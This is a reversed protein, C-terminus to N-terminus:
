SMKINGNSVKHRQSFSILWVLGLVMIGGAAYFVANVDAFDLLFGGILPGLVMGASTSMTLVAVTSGMGFKRGEAITLASAPPFEAAGVIGAFINLALLPWFGGTLPMAALSAATIIGSVVIMGKKNVKDAVRGFVIMMLSSILINATLLIGIQSPGLGLGSALIALSVIYIGWGAELTLRYGLLGQIMGSSLMARFSIRSKDAVQKVRSEPLLISAVLFALFGLGSMSIFTVTMGFNETLIGSLLPGVGLAIFVTASFYGMWTGEKGEPSLDGVYSMAIPFIMGGAAGHVMRVVVLQWPNVAWIYGPAALVALMLGVLLIPKRGKRDSLRGIFPAMLVRTGSYVAFLIGIWIGTVGMQEVYIPILPIIVGMGILSTFVSLALIPFIKEISIPPRNTLSTSEGNVQDNTSL